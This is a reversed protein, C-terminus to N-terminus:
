WKIELVFQIPDQLNGTCTIAQLLNYQTVVGESGLQCHKYAIDKGIYNNAQKNQWM